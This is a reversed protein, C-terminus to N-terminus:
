DHRHFDGFASLRHGVAAATSDVVPIGVHRQEQHLLKVVSLNIQCDHVLASHAAGHGFAIHGFPEDHRHERKFIIEGYEFEGARLEFLRETHKGYSM